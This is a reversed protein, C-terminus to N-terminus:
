AETLAPSAIAVVANHGGMGLSSNLTIGPQRYTPGDLAFPQAEAVLRPAPIVDHQYTLCSVVLEVASAAGQCHGLLPKLSFAGEIDPLLEDIVKVEAQDCQVTGTAHANVYAVDGAEIGADALALEFCRKVQEASPDISVVHFADNTMAGGLIEVYPDETVQSTLLMAVSAEGAVFGKTGEQFPRCTEFPHDRGQLPGLREYNHVNEVTASIDTALVLVDDCVGADIWAKATLVAANGSACMASVGMVPGHFGHEQAVLSVPTSPMLEMYQRRSLSGGHVLYFDKWLDVEGLVLAHVIGTRDNPLWGREVADEIAERAAANVARSFRSSGDNPDGGEPVRAVWIEDVDFHSSFGPTKSAASEGSVLGDWLHKRGWGYATVAGIGAVTTAPRETPSAALTTRNM